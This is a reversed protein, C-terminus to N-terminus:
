RQIAGGAAAALLRGAKAGRQLDGCPWPVFVTAPEEHEELHNMLHLSNNIENKGFPRRPLVIDRVLNFYRPLRREGPATLNQTNSKSPLVAGCVACIM